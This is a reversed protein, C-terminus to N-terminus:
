PDAVTPPTLFHSRRSFLPWDAACGAVLGTSACSSPRARACDCAVAPATNSGSAAATWRTRGGTTLGSGAPMSSHPRVSSTPPKRMKFAFLEARLELNSVIKRKGYYRNAPVGRVFKPGGIASTEDFRSLEYFPVNGVQVDGLLRGALVLKDTGLPVFGSFSASIGAYQYPMTATQWPAGRIELRHHQGRSPNVENDRSDYILGAELWHLIHNTDIQLLSRVTRAASRPTVCCPPHPHFQLRNHM